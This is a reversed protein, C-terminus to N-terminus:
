KLFGETEKSYKYINRCLYIFFTTKSLLLFSGSLIVPLFFLPLGVVFSYILVATAITDAVGVFINLLIFLKSNSNRIISTDVFYGTGSYVFISIFTCIRLITKNVTDTAKEM